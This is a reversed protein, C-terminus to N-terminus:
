LMIWLEQDICCFHGRGKGWMINWRSELLLARCEEKEEILL